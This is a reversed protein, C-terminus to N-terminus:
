VTSKTHGMTTSLYQYCTFPQAVSLELSGIALIKICVSVTSCLKHSLKDKSGSTHGLASIHGDHGGHISLKKNVGQQRSYFLKQKETGCFSSNKSALLIMQPLKCFFQVATHMDENPNHSKQLVM